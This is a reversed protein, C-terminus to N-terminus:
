HSRCTKIGAASRRCHSSHIVVDSKFGFQGHNVEDSNATADVSQVGEFFYHPYKRPVITYEIQRGPYSQYEKFKQNHIAM